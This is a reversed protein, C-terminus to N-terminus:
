VRQLRILFMLFCLRLRGSQLEKSLVAADQSPYSRHRCESKWCKWPLVLGLHNQFADFNWASSPKGIKQQTQEVSTLPIVHIPMSVIHTKSHPNVMVFWLLIYHYPDIFAIPVSALVGQKISIMFHQHFKGEMDACTVSEAFIEATRKLCRAPISVSCGPHKWELQLEPPLLYEYIGGATPKGPDDLMSVYLSRDQILLAMPRLPDPCQLVETPTMDGPRFAFVKRAVNDAFYITEGETVFLGCALILCEEGTTPIQGVVVPELSEAPNIRLIRGDFDTIYIVEDKTVFICGPSDPSYFQLDEPLSASAVVTQLTSDVLKQVIMEVDVEVLVYVVGNPSCFVGRSQIHDCVLHGCGDQFRVLRSNAYDMVFIEGSPSVGLDSDWGLDNVGATGVDQGVVKRLSTAPEGPKWCCLNGACDSAYIAGNYWCMSHSQIPLVERGSAETSAGLDPSWHKFCRRKPEFDHSSQMSQARKRKMRLAQAVERNLDEANSGSLTLRALRLLNEFSFAQFDVHTLLIGFGDRDKSFNLWKFIGKFVVEERSVSLDQRKLIRALQVVSLKGFDPHQSCTEFDEAVKDECADNLSDLGHLEQLIRLAKASDLSVCFGAEIESALSQLDYAEALRLLELGTELPVEPQGGYIYDLLASVAAKSAAIEVPQKQQVRDAELFSGCLLNEFYVSAASLVATHARHEAGDRSKLTVDCLSDEMWFKRLRKMIGAQHQAADAHKFKVPAM